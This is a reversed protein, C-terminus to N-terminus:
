NKKNVFAFLEYTEDALDKSGYSIGDHLVDRHHYDSGVNGESYVPINGNSFGGVAVGIDWYCHRWIAYSKWKCQQRGDTHVIWHSANLQCFM